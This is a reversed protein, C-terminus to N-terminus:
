FVTMTPAPSVPWSTARLSLCCGSYPMSTTPNTSALGFFAPVIEAVEHEEAVQYRGSIMPARPHLTHYREEPFIDGPRELEHAHEPVALDVHVDDGPEELDDTRVCVDVGELTQREEAQRVGSGRAEDRIILRAISMTPAVTASTQDSREERVDGPLDLTPRGARNKGAAAAPSFWRSNVTSFNLVMRTSRSISRM